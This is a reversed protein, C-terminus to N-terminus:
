PPPHPPIQKQLEIIEPDISANIYNYMTKESIGYVPYIYLRWITRNSLGSRAYRDLIDNVEKVRMAYSLGRNPNYHRM